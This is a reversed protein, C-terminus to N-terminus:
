EERVAKWREMLRTFWDGDPPAPGPPLAGLYTPQDGGAGGTAAPSTAPLRLFDRHSEDTSLFNLPGILNTDGLTRLDDEALDRPQAFWNNRLQWSAIAKTRMGPTQFNFAPAAFLNNELLVGDYPPAYAVLIAEDAHLFTNNLIHVKRGTPPEGGNLRLLNAPRDGAFVNERIWIAQWNPNVNVAYSRGIFEGAFLNRYIIVSATLPSEQYSYAHIGGSLFECDRVITPVTWTTEEGSEFQVVSAGEAQLRGAFRFVCHEVVAGPCRISIGRVPIAHDFEFRLGHMRIGAASKFVHVVMLPTGNLDVQKYESPVIVSGVRSIVGLDDAEYHHLKERYPGRDLIEVVQGPKAKDLADQIKTFMASGDQKVTLIERDKLWEELPPPELTATVSRRSSGPPTSDSSDNSTAEPVAPPTIPEDRRLTIAVKWREQLRTFWDGEPPAPGPPLAGYYTKGGAASEASAFPDAIVLRAYNRDDPADSIFKPVAILNSPHLPRGDADPFARSYGNWRQLVHEAARDEFQEAGKVLTACRDALSVNYEIRLVGAPIGNGFHM